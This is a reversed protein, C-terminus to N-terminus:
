GRAREYTMAAEVSDDSPPTSEAILQDIERENVQISTVKVFLSQVASESEALAMTKVATLDALTMAGLTGVSISVRAYQNGDGPKRLTEVAFEGTFNKGVFEKIGRAKEKVQYDFKQLESKARNVDIFEVGKSSLLYIVAGAASSSMGVEIAAKAFENAGPHVGIRALHTGSTTVVWMFRAGPAFSANLSNVDHEYFDKKGSKLFQFGPAEVISRMSELLQSTKMSVITFM